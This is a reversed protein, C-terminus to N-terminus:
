DGSHGTPPGDPWAVIPCAVAAAIGRVAARLDTPGAVVVAGPGFAVAEVGVDAMEAPDVPLAVVRVRHRLGIRAFAEAWCPARRGVADDTAVVLVPGHIGEGALTALLAAVAPDEPPLVPEVM